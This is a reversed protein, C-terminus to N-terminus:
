QCYGSIDGPLIDCKNSQCQSNDTCPAGNPLLGDKLTASNITTWSNGKRRYIGASGNTAALVDGNIFVEAGNIAETLPPMAYKATLETPIQAFTFERMETGGQAFVGLKLDFVNIITALSTQNIPYGSIQMNRSVYGTKDNKYVHIIGDPTMALLDGSNLVPTTTGTYGCAQELVSIGSLIGLETSPRFASDIWGSNLDNTKIVGTNGTPLVILQKGDWTIDDIQGKTPANPMDFVKQFDDYLQELKGGNKGCRYGALALTGLATIKLFDRRNM